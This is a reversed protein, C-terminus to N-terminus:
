MSNVVTGLYPIRMLAPDDLLQDIADVASTGTMMIRALCGALVPASFSTGSWQAWGNFDDPDTGDPQLPLLGDFHDFFTSIVEVGPACASVWGGYNTFYAPGSPGIAGVSIVGPLAAPFSPRWSADNGASAVVTVGRAQIAGVASALLQPEDLVYGGFSMSLLTRSPQPFQLARLRKIVRWEDTDGYTALVRHVITRCGPAVHGILGAIFTGHGAVPDVLGDKTEDPEDTDTGSAPEIPGGKLADPLFRPIALGTDLVIVRPSASTPPHALRKAIGDTVTGKPAPRASSTTAATRTRSSVAKDYEPTPNFPTPN